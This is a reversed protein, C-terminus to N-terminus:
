QRFAASQLGKIADEVRSSQGPRLDLKTPDQDPTRARSGADEKETDLKM